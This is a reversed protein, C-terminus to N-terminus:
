VRRTSFDLLLLTLFKSADGVLLYGGTVKRLVYPNVAGYLHVVVDGERADDPFLGVGRGECHGVTRGAGYRRMGERLALNGIRTETWAEPALLSRAYAADAEPPVQGFGFQAKPQVLLLRAVCREEPTASDGSDVGFSFTQPAGFLGGAPAQQKTTLISRAFEIWVALVQALEANSYTDKAAPAGLRAIRGCVRGKVTLIKRSPDIHYQAPKHALPHSTTFNTFGTTSAPFPQAKWPDFLNPAWSPLSHLRDVNQAASLINLNDTNTIIATAALRYVDTVPLGYDVTLKYVSPDALGLVGFLKDHLDTAKCARSHLLLTCLDIYQSGRGSKDRLGSLGEARRVYNTQVLRPVHAMDSRKSHLRLHLLSEQLSIEAATLENLTCSESGCLFSLKNGLAVEQRVWVRDWWERQFLAALCALNNRRVDDPVYTHEIKPLGPGRRPPKALNRVLGMATGSGDAEGGLWVQVRTASAYIRRMLAVQANREAVDAQNICLADIWWLSRAPSFETGRLQRLAAALNATVPLAGGAVLVDAGGPVSPDGWAYSLATYSDAVRTDARLVFPLMSLAASLSDLSFHLLTGTIPDTPNPSPDLSLVRIENKTADLPRYQYQAYRQQAQREGEPTNQDEFPRKQPIISPSPTPFVPISASSQGTTSPQPNAHPFPSSLRSLAREIRGLQQEIADLRTTLPALLKSFVQTDTPAVSAM